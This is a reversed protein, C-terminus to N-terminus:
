EGGVGSDDLLRMVVGALFSLQPAEWQTWGCAPQWFYRDCVDPRECVLWGPPLPLSLALHALWLLHPHTTPEIGLYLATQLVSELSCPHKALQAARAVQPAGHWLEAEATRLLEVGSLGPWFSTATAAALRAASTELAVRPLVCKTLSARATEPLLCDHRTGTAFDFCYLGGTSSPAGGASGAGAGADADAFVVFSDTFRPRLHRPHAVLRDFFPTLLASVPHGTATAGTIAHVYTPQERSDDSNTLERSDDSNTLTTLSWNPPLPARALEIVLPLVCCALADAQHPAGLKLGVSQGVAVVWAPTLPGQRLRPQSSMSQLARLQSWTGGGAAAEAPACAAALRKALRQAGFIRPRELAHWADRRGSRSPEPPPPPLSPPPACLGRVVNHAGSLRIMMEKARTRALSAAASAPAAALSPAPAAALAAVPEPARAPASASGLSPPAGHQALQREIRQCVSDVAEQLASADFEPANARIRKPCILMHHDARVPKALSACYYCFHGSTDAVSHSPRRSSPSSNLFVDGEEAPTRPRTPPPPPPLGVNWRIDVKVTAKGPVAVEPWLACTEKLAGILMLKGRARARATRLEQRKAKLALATRANLGPVDQVGLFRGLSRGTPQEAAAVPAHAAADEATAGAAEPPRWIARQLEQFEIAGGGDRDYSEFLRDVEHSPVDIGLLAVAKRLEAKRVKGDGNTDWQKFQDLLKAHNEVLVSRLHQQVTVLADTADLRASAQPSAPSPRQGWALTELSRQLESAGLRRLYALRGPELTRKQACLSALAAEASAITERAESELCELSPREFTTKQAASIVHRVVARAGSRGQRLPGSSRALIEGLKGNSAAESLTQLVEATSPEGDKERRVALVLKATPHEGFGSAGSSGASSSGGGSSRGQAATAAAAAPGAAAEVAAAEEDTLLSVEKVYLRSEPVMTNLVESLLDATEDLVNERAAKGEDSDMAALVEDYALPHAPESSVSSVSWVSSSLPPAGDSSLRRGFPSPIAGRDLSAAPANGERDSSGVWTTRRTGRPSHNPAARAETLVASLVDAASSAVGPAVLPSVATVSRRWSPSEHKSLEPPRRLFLTITGDVHTTAHVPMTRLENALQRAADLELSLLHCAKAARREAPKLSLLVRQLRCRRAALRRDLSEWATCHIARWTRVSGEATLWEDLDCTIDLGRWGLKRIAESWTDISHLVAGVSKSFATAAAAADKAAKSVMSSAGSDGQAASATAARVLAVAAVAASAAGEAAAVRRAASARQSALSDEAEALEVQAELEAVAQECAALQVNLAYAPLVGWARAAQLASVAGRSLAVREGLEAASIGAAENGLAVEAHIKAEVEAAAATAAQVAEKAKEAAAAAAEATPVDEHVAEWMAAEIESRAAALAARERAVRAGRLMTLVDVQSLRGGLAIREPRARWYSDDAPSAMSAAAAAAEDTARVVVESWAGSHAGRAAGAAGGAIAAELSAAARNAIKIGLGRQKEDAACAAPLLRSLLPAHITGDPDDKDDEDAEEEGDEANVNVADGSSGRGLLATNPMVLSPRNVNVADGSSGRGQLATEPMVLSPRSSSAESAHTFARWLVQRLERKRGLLGRVAMAVRAPLRELHEHARAKLEERERRQRKVEMRATTVRAKRQIVGTAAQQRRRTDRRERNAVLESAIRAQRETMQRQRTDRRERNAELESAIRAQRETPKRTPSIRGNPNPGDDGIIGGGGGGGGGGSGGGGSTLAAIQEAAFKEDIVLQSATRLFFGRAIAQVKIVAFLQKQESEKRHRQVLARQVRVMKRALRNRYARQVLECAATLHLAEVCSQQYRLLKSYCEGGYLIVQLAAWQWRSSLRGHKAREAAARALSSSSSTLSCRQCEELLMHQAAQVASLYEPDSDPPPDFLSALETAARGFPLAQLSHVSSFLWPVQEGFWGLLLPNLQLPLPLVALDTTMKLLYSVGQWCFPLERAPLLQLEASGRRMAARWEAIGTCIAVSESRLARLLSALRLRVGNLAVDDRLWRQTAADRAEPGEPLPLLMRLQAVLSERVEIRESLRQRLAAAEVAAEMAVRVPPPPPLPQLQPAAPPQVGTLLYQLREANTMLRRSAYIPGDFVTTYSAPLKIVRAPRQNLSGRGSGLTTNTMNTTNTTNSPGGDLPDLYEDEMTESGGYFSDVAVQSFESGSLLSAGAAEDGYPVDRVWWRPRHRHLKRHLRPTSGSVTMPRPPRVPPLQTISDTALPELHALHVQMRVPGKLLLKRRRRPPIVSSDVGDLTRRKYYEGDLISLAPGVIL